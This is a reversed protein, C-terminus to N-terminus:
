GSAHAGSAAAQRGRARASGSCGYLRECLSHWDKSDRMNLPAFFRERIFESWPKGSIQQILAGASNYLINGYASRLSTALPVFRLRYNIQEGNLDSAPWFMLDGGGLPLGSRDCLLDRIRM